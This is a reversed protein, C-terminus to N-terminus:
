NMKLQLNRALRERESRASSGTTTSEYVPELLLRVKQHKSEFLIDLAIKEKALLALKAQMQWKEWKLPPYASPKEWFPEIGLPTRMQTESQAMNYLIM